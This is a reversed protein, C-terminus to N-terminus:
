ASTSKVASSHWAVGVPGSGKYPINKFDMGSALRFMATRM